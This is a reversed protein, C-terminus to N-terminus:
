NTYSLSRTERVNRSVLRALAPSGPKAAVLNYGRTLSTKLGALQKLDHIRVPRIRAGLFYVDLGKDLTFETSRCALDAGHDEYIFIAGCNVLNDAGEFAEREAGEVDLKVVINSVESDRISMQAFLDDITISQVSENQCVSVATSTHLIIGNSDHHTPDARFQLTAGSRSYIAKRIAVFSYRNLESNEVLRAFTSASPEVAVVRERSGLREGAYVSWYGINAGCDLFVSRHDLLEDLVSAVEAEYLAGCLAYRVWYDDNLYVRLRAGGFPIVASNGGPFLPSIFRCMRRLGRYSVGRLVASSGRLMAYQLRTSLLSGRLTVNHLM